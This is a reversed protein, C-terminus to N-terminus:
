RQVRPRVGVTLLRRVAETTRAEVCAHDLSHMLSTRELSGTRANETGSASNNRETLRASAPRLPIM